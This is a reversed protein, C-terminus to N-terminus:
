KVNVRQIWEVLDAYEKLAIRYHHNRAFERAPKSFSSTTVILGNSAGESTITGYLGRVYEISVPRKKAYRKCEVLCLIPGTPM